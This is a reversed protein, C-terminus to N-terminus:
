SKIRMKSTFGGSISFYMIWKDAVLERFRSDLTVLKKGIGMLISMECGTGNM